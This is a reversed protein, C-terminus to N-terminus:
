AARDLRLRSQMVGTPVKVDRALGLWSLAKIVHWTHDLEFWKLGHRASFPFAHHNNHWGEGWSFLAIWWCNTSRDGTKFTQYGSSHAASNILWTLHYSLVLRVFVGWIVWSWGGFIFLIVALVIQLLLTYKELRLYFPQACLDPAMRIQEEKTLMAGNPFFLWQFHSWNFGLNADHPDGHRDSNAHHARHTSVWEIPGGQLALAGLIATAYEVPKSLRLSRHTLTRHYNLTVGLAGTLYLLSFVVIIASWSFFGSWLAALAGLHIAALGFATPWKITPTPTM